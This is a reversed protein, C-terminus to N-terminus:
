NNKTPSDSYSLSFEKSFCVSGLEVRTIHLLLKLNFIILNIKKLFFLYIFSEYFTM